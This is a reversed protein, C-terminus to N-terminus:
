GLNWQLVAAPCFRPIPRAAPRSDNSPATRARRLSGGEQAFRPRPVAAQVFYSSTEADLGFEASRGRFRQHHDDGRHGSSGAGADHEIDISRTLAQSGRPPWGASTSNVLSM